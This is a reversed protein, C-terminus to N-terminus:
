PSRRNSDVKSWRLTQLGDTGVLRDSFFRRGGRAPALRNPSGIAVIIPDCGAIRAAMLGALGVEGAGYVAISQGTAPHMVNLAAGAGTQLGCGLPGLMDSMELRGAGPCEFVVVLRGAASNGKVSRATDVPFSSM